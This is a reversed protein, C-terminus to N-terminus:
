PEPEMVDTVLSAYSTLYTKVSSGVPIVYNQILAVASALDGTDNGRALRAMLLTHAELTSRDGQIATQTEM